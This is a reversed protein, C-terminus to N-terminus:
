ILFFTHDRCHNNMMMEELAPYAHPLTVRRSRRVVEREWWIAHEEGGWANVVPENFDPVLVFTIFNLM